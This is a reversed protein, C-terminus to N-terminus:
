LVVGGAQINEGACYIVSKALYKLKSHHLINVVILSVKALKLGSLWKAVEAADQEGSLM